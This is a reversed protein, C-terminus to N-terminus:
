VAPTNRIRQREHRIKSLTQFIEEGYYAEVAAEFIFHKIDDIEDADGGDAQVQQVYSKVLDIL